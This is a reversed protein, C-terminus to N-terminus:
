EGVGRRHRLLDEVLSVSTGAGDLDISLSRQKKRDAADRALIIAKNLSKSTLEAEEIPVVLDLEAFCRARQTQETEGDEAYPVVVAPCGAILLDIATNYGFQSVSVSCNALLEIFDPRNREVQLCANQMLQLEDFERQDLNPGALLRWKSTGESAAAAAVQLLGSGAAGGGASVLVEGGNGAHRVGLTASGSHIYGTYKLECELQDAEYFSSKLPTLAADGHVLILDFFEAVLALTEHRRKERRQQLVDRISSVILPRTRMRRMHEVLRLLEFAMQRRGFPWTEILLVDPAFESIGNVLLEARRDRFTDDIPKSSMDVLTLFDGPLTKVPPLQLLAYDPKKTVPGGAVLLVEHGESHFRSALAQM